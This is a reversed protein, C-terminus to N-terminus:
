WMQYQTPNGWRPQVEDQGPNPNIFKGDPAFSARRPARSEVHGDGYLNNKWGQLPSRRPGHVFQFGFASNFQRSQDTMLLKLAPKSDNNKIIYEDRNDGSRNTDWFRWDIQGGGPASAPPSGDPGFTGTFHYQPYYPNPNAFYWYKIRGRPAMFDEPWHSLGTGTTGPRDGDWFFNAPCYFILLGGPSFPTNSPESKPNTIRALADRVQPYKLTVGAPADPASVADQGASVGDVLTEPSQLSMPPFYGRNQQAYMHLIQGCARLNSMCQVNTARQRAMNLTPLLVGVLIAIIGIVVLLEVLTFARVRQLRM